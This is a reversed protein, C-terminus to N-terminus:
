CGEGLGQGCLDARDGTVLEHLCNLLLLLYVEAQLVVDVPDNHGDHLGVRGDQLDLLSLFAWGLTSEPSWGVGSVASGSLGWCVSGLACLQALACLHPQLPPLCPSFSPPRSQLGCCTHCAPRGMARAEWQGRRETCLHPSRKEPQPSSVRMHCVRGSDWGTLSSLFSAPGLWTSGGASVCAGHGPAM